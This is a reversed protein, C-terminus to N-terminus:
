PAGYIPNKLIRRIRSWNWGSGDRWRKGERNLVVAIEAASQGLRALERIHRVLGLDEELPVLANGDRRFGFPVPGYVRFTERRRSLDALSRERAGEAKLAGLRLAMRAFARGDRTRTDIPDSDVLLHAGRTTVAAIAGAVSESDRGLDEFHRVLVLWEGESAPPPAADLGLSTLTRDVDALLEGARDTVQVLRERARAPASRGALGRGEEKRRDSEPLIRALIERRFVPRATAPTFLDGSDAVIQATPFGGRAALSSLEGRLGGEFETSGTVGYALARFPGESRRALSRLASEWSDNM